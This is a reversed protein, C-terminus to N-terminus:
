GFYSKAYDERSKVAGQRILRDALDKVEAPLDAFTKTTTSRRGVQGNGEVTPPEARRKNGFREPFRKKVEATVLALKEQDDLYQTDPDSNIRNLTGEALSRMEPNRPDLFWRNQAAWDKYVQPVEALAAERGKDHGNATKTADKGAERVEDIRADFAEAQEVNGESIAVRRQAKLQEVASKVARDRDKAQMEVLDRMLKTSDDLKRHLSVLEAQMKRNNERLMPLQADAKALYADADIWKASGSYEDKPRWGMAYAREEATPEADAGEDAGGADQNLVHEDAEPAEAEAVKTGAQSM